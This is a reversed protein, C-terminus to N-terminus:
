RGGHATLSARLRRRWDNIGKVIFLREGPKVYGLGRAEGALTGLSTSSRLRQRLIAKQHELKQVAAARQALQGHADVYAKLPRYYLLGVLMLAGVAFLRRYVVRRRRPKPMAGKKLLLV